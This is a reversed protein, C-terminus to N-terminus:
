KVLKWCESTEAELEAKELERQEYIQKLNDPRRTYLFDSGEKRYYVKATVDEWYPNPDTNFNLPNDNNYYNNDKNM